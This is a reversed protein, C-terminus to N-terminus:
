GTRGRRRSGEPLLSLRHRDVLVSAVFALALELDLLADGVRREARARRAARALHAAQDGLRREHQLAAAPVRVEVGRLRLRGRLAGRLLAAGLRAAGLLRRGGVLRVRRGRLAALTGAALLPLLGLRLRLGGRLRRPAAGGNYQGGRERPATAM